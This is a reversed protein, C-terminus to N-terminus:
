TNLNLTLLLMTWKRDPRCHHGLNRNGDLAMFIGPTQAVYHKLAVYGSRGDREYRGASGSYPSMRAWAASLSWTQTEPGVATLTQAVVEAWKLTWSGHQQQFGLSRLGDPAMTNDSVPSCDCAVDLDM